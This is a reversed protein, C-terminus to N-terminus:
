IPKIIDNRDAGLANVIKNFMEADNMFKEIYVVGVLPVGIKEALETQSIGRIKRMQQITIKEM